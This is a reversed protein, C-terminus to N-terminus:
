LALGLIRAAKENNGYEGTRTPSLVPSEAPQPPLDSDLYEAPHSWEGAGLSRRKKKINGQSPQKWNLDPRPSHPATITRLDSTSGEASESASLPTKGRSSGPVAAGASASSGEPTRSRMSLPILPGMLRKPEADAGPTALPDSIVQPVAKENTTLGKTTAFASSRKHYPDRQSFSDEIPHVM